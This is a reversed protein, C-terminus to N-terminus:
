YERMYNICIECVLYESADSTHGIKEFKKGTNPDKEEEKFKGNVDLKVYEFDRITQKCSSDIIFEVQPIKGELIRNFLDRRKLNAINAKRVRNYNNPLYGRLKNEIIRYQTLDGLGTIRNRGSADGYLFVDPNQEMFEMDDKFAQAAQETTNQPSAMCYEKYQRIRMVEMVERGVEPEDYKKKTVPDYYRTIFEIQYALETIYPMVNFDWTLHVPLGPIYPVNGVFLRRDFAPFYEGGTKSFPYGYIFKLVENESLQAIRSNIYGPPLNAENWFTQYIVVTRQEDQRYFYQYPDSLTRRIEEEFNGLDFLEIIWDVGGEAPSTHITCPNWSRWGLDAAELLTLKDDFYVSGDQDTWLGYQRLRALIVITLAEKKTDKTEDLEAWAFEKGDHAKYNDLSGVFILAGNRFSIIGSYNKFTDFRKFHAPPKKDLVYDGEPNSKADYETLGYYIEWVKFAKTLTSQNLQMYTNAAIFGKARPFETVFYGSKFGINDTKGAGQGAMDLILATRASFVDTQPESLEVEKIIEEAGDM